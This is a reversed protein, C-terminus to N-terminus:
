AALTLSRSGTRVGTGYRISTEALLNDAWTDIQTGDAGVRSGDGWLRTLDLRAFANIVDASAAHIKKSDAHKNATALEHVSVQGRMHRAVQAPGLNAGQCFTLLAYRGLTDRIKPDSGSAPGFHRHWGIAYATRTLIDLIGREPLRETLAAELALASARRERGRRRRLVPRGEDIVLDTNHPYGTDVLAATDELQARLAATAGAAGAPLGAEACYAGILPECEEWSLLQDAFNAYSESGAVAIDGSRLEAALCSFVCAEFHRRVLRGPRRRDTMIKRWAEPAFSLDIEKGGERAPIYEGTRGHIARLFRIADLLSTDASAPRLVLVDLVGFLAPRSSRCFREVLPLYNNGHHATVTEHAASLAAVGGAQGLAGLVLRGARACVEETADAVGSDQEGPSVGLAERVGALVEGFTDLLRESEARTEERLQELRERARKHIAAMRKCFMTAIEDRARVRATKILAAVLARKKEPAYRRLDAVDTVRAEGAFHAVKAPPVGALWTDAAGLSDLWALHKLHDKFRQVSAAPAVTKLRDFDSRRRVPDVELLGDAVAVEAPTMRAAIGAFVATNVQARISAALEDLTGYAPLELRARVLEELAVNILDAPNDKIQAAARIAQGAVQRARGPDATIGLRARVLSKHQRLTRDSDHRAQVDPKLELMGRIHETVPPPVEALVPFYGLRHCSKLLVVLALLHEPTRTQERAWAIEGAVPTFAEHLERVPVARKFRPYATREISAV